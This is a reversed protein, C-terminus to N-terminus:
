HLSNGLISTHAHTLAHLLSINLPLTLLRSFRAIFRTQLIFDRRRTLIPSMLLQILFWRLSCSRWDPPTLFPFLLPSSWTVASVFAQCARRFYSNIALNSACWSHIVALISGWSCSVFVHRSISAFGSSVSDSDSCRSIRPSAVATSVSSACSLRDSFWRGATHAAVWPFAFWPYNRLLLGSLGFTCYLCSFPRFHLLPYHLLIAFSLISRPLLLLTLLINLCATSSCTAFCIVPVKRLRRYNLSQVNHLPRDEGFRLFLNCVSYPDFFCSM